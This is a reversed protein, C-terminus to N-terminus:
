RSRSFFRHERHSVSAVRRSLGAFCVAADRANLALNVLVQEVKVGVGVRPRARRNQVDRRGTLEGAIARNRLIRAIYPVERM